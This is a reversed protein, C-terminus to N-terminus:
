ASRAASLSTQGPLAERHGKTGAVHHLALIQAVDADTFAITRGVRVHPWGYRRTWEVVKRHDANGQDDLLLGLATPSIPRTNM